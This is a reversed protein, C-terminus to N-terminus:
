KEYRVGQTQQAEIIVDDFSGSQSWAQILEREEDDTLKFTLTDHHSFQAWQHRM